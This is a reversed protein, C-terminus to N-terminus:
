KNGVGHGISQLWGMHVINVSDFKIGEDGGGSGCLKKESAVVSDGFGSLFQSCEFLMSIGVGTQVTFGLLAFAHLSDGIAVVNTIDGRAHACKQSSVLRTSSKGGLELLRLQVEQNFEARRM